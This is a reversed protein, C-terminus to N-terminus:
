HPTQSSRRAAVARRLWYVAVGLVLVAAGSIVSSVPLAFALVVCGIVGVIPILRAPRDEARRLTFASANAIAYYILV